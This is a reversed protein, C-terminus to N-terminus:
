RLCGRFGRGIAVGERDAVDAGVHHVGSEVLVQRVIRDTVERRHAAQYGGPGGEDRAGPERRLRELLEDRSRLALGALEVDADGARVALDPGLNELVEGADLQVVHR